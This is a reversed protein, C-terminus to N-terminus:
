SHRITVLIGSPTSTITQLPPLYKCPFKKLRIDAKDLSDQHERNTPPPPPAPLTPKPFALTFLDV